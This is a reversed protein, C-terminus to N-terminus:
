EFIVTVGVEKFKNAIDKMRDADSLEADDNIGALREALGTDIPGHSGTGIFLDKYQQPISVDEYALDSPMGMNVMAYAPIGCARGAHGLCCMRGDTRRLYSEVGGRCWQSKKIVFSKLQGKRKGSKYLEVKM